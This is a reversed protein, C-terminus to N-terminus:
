NGIPTMVFHYVGSPLLTHLNEENKTQKLPPTGEDMRQIKWRNAQGLIWTASTNPPVTARFEWGGDLFQWASEIRGYVSDYHGKAFRMQGTPDPTPNLYFHKFGPTAPDRKIGLSYANMWAAVAGFSYHNFSNMSNNGGFGNELTFSNLREWITTAGNKVSYLWSPYSTQQLLQYALDDRGAESLAPNLAATGIFGTMLSYAPREIGMEDENPREITAALHQQAWLKNKTNLVDLALPVAYSVQTDMEDGNTKTREPPLPPGFRLSPHGRHITKGSNEDFYTNNLFTKREEFQNKFLTAEDEKELLQATKQLVSLNYAHYATWLLTPDNKYGEPSLWDGLPGELLFGTEPEIKSFLFANYAKMAEYHEQLIKKDGYQLYMEWPIVIGASGWLTGGFGGGVPAVDTFRGAKTQIDRMAMLHRRLFPAVPALYTASQSFVNIDGSWGMRENRAPTDTPISLFNGRLSWTINEWLKNVLPNSTNYSSALTDISSIVKGQVASLPLANEIGTIEIFRYGHFTFRPLIVEDPAGKRIYLDQALAARINELMVMGNNEKYEALDPYKVEAYRLTLTDKTHAATLDIKPFGVMNQGMDYVFVGPRVEEVAQATLTKVIKANKGLQGSMQLQEFNLDPSQFTTGQLPVEQARDWLHDDYQPTSWGAIAKEKRADYVEGQFFSGYRIPGDTFLKWQKDNTTIVQETGDKYTIVLQALFSQRDGFYNWHEGSYTINGSWWGESLWAGLANTGNKNLLQTVDYTQYMHTTNYQTLGPNFYDSGIRKGNIYIEYVGRATAYLRAKTIEKPTTKFTTRLLPTANQSPDAVVMAGNKGAEIAYGKSSIEFTNPKSKPFFISKEPAKSLDETFIPNSPSRFHRVTLDSFVANGKQRLKFGIDALMPFSIYDNGRGVPNVNFGLRRRPSNSKDDDISIKHEPTQGDMFVEFFGFNCSLYFHHKQNKNSNNLLTKSIPFQTFPKEPDDGPTYGVRYVNLFANGNSSNNVESLDLEFELYSANKKAEVGQINKNQDQLRRDNAGLIFSAKQSKSKRDIQLAYSLRFVSLYHSYFNLHEDGGGIWQAQKWATTNPNMLGTEFHSTATTHQEKEDWVTISITYRTQAKLPSGGYPIGVSINQEVRGTNWTLNNNEDSVQIQYAKQTKGYHPTDVWMQWSFHPVEEDIGLPTTQFDVQIHGVQFQSYLPQFLHVFLVTLAFLSLLRRHIRM